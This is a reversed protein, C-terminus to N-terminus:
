FDPPIDQKCKRCEGCHAWGVNTRIPVNCSFTESLLEPPMSARVEDKRCEVFPMEFRIGTRGSLAEVAAIWEGNHEAHEERTLRSQGEYWFYDDAISGDAVVEIDPQEHLIAAVHVAILNTTHTDLRMREVPEVEDYWVEYQGHTESLWKIIRRSAWKEARARNAGYNWEVGVHLAYVHDTKLYHWVVATSDVGGSFPVLIM